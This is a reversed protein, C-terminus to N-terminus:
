CITSSPPFMGLNKSYLEKIDAALSTKSVEEDYTTDPSVLDTRKPKGIKSAWEQIQVCIESIAKAGVELAQM